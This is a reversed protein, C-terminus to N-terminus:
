RSEAYIPKMEAACRPCYPPPFEFDIRGNVFEWKFPESTGLDGTFAQHPCVWGIRGQSM